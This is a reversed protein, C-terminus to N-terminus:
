SSAAVPLIVLCKRNGIQEELLRSRDKMRMRHNFDM